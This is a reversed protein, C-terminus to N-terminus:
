DFPLVTQPELQEILRRARRGMRCVRRRLGDETPWHNLLAREIEQAPYPMAETGALAEALRQHYTRVTM